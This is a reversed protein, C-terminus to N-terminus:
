LWWLALLPACILSPLYDAVTIRKLDLLILAVCFVLLGSTLTLSELIRPDRLYPEAWEAALTLSGQWALVPIAALLAGWGFVQAFAMSALGDVVAKLILMRHDGFLGDQLAGLLALPGVCFLITCAIFGESPRPRGGKAALEFKEQALRGLYNSGKQLRCTRGIVSGLALALIVSSLQLLRHRFSGSFGNLATSLGLYVAFAGVVIKLRSQRLPALSKRTILSFAGGVVIGAVNVVTGIVAPFSDRGRGERPM